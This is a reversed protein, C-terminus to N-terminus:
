TSNHPIDWREEVTTRLPVVVCGQPRSMSLSERARAPSSRNGMGALRQATRARQGSALLPQPDLGIEPQRRLREIRVAALEGVVEGDTPTLADIRQVGAPGLDRAIDAIQDTAWIRAARGDHRNNLLQGLDPHSSAAFNVVLM